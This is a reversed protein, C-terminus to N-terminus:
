SRTLFQVSFLQEVDTWVEEVNFGAENAMTEFGNLTYKHSFETLIAEGDAIDFTQDTQSVLEIVVRGKTRQSDYVSFGGAPSRTRRTIVSM